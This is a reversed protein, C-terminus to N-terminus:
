RVLARLLHEIGAGPWPLFPEGSPQTGWTTTPGRDVSTATAPRDLTRIDRTTMARVQQEWPGALVDDGGDPDGVETRRRDARVLRADPLLAYRTFAHHTEEHGGAADHWSRRRHWDHEALLWHRGLVPRVPDGWHESPPVRAATAAREALRRIARLDLWEPRPEQEDRM